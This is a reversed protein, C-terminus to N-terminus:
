NWNTALLAIVILVAPVVYVLLVLRRRFSGHYEKMGTEVYAARAADDTSDPHERDWEKELGERALSRAYISVAVYVVSLAIFGFFGLRILAM